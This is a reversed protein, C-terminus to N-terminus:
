NIEYKLGFLINSQSDQNIGTDQQIITKHNNKLLQYYLIASLKNKLKKQLGFQLGYNFKASKTNRTQANNLPDKIWLLESYGLILGIYPKLLVNDFQYNGSLYFNNTDIQDYSARQFSVDAFYNNSYIYGISFNSAFGNDDIKNVLSSDGNINTNINSSGISVQIYYNNNHDYVKKLTNKNSKPSDKKIEQKKNKIPINSENIRQLLTINNEKISEKTKQISRNYGYLLGNNAKKYFYTKSNKIKM